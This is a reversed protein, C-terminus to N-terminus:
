GGDVDFVSWCIDNRGAMDELVLDRVADPLRERQWAAELQRAEEGGGDPAAGVTAKIAYAAAGLDHEAVHGVCAAQGAAYAAFRAAGTLPRAAGMAHGGLARAAMMPIEGVAWARAAAIAERPRRDAPAAAEFHPLVHEACDAAWLALAQHHEDTLSGGRRVTIMRPDRVPPLIM